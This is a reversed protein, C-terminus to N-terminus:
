LCRSVSSCIPWFAKSARYVVKGDAWADKHFRESIGYQTRGGRDEPLNTVTAGGERELVDDIIKDIDNPM